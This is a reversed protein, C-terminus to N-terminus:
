KKNLVIWWAFQGSNSRLPGFAYSGRYAGSEPPVFTVVYEGAPLTPLTFQGQADTLVSGAAPGVTMDSPNTSLRPYITVRVDAIKPSTKLTDTGPGTVSPGMVTGHFFGTGTPTTQPTTVTDNSSTASLGALASPTSPQTPTTDDSCAVTTVAVALVAAFAIRSVRM